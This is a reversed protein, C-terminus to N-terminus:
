CFIQGAPKLFSNSLIMNTTYKQLDDVRPRPILCQSDDCMEMCKRSEEEDRKQILYSNTQTQKHGKEKEICMYRCLWVVHVCDCVCVSKHFWSRRSNVHLSFTMWIGRKVDCGAGWSVRSQSKQMQPPSNDLLNNPTQCPGHKNQVRVKVPHHNWNHQIKM